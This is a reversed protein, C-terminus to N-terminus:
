PRSSSVHQAMTNSQGMRETVRGGNMWFSDFLTDFREFEEICGTLVTKLASKAENPRFADVFTLSTLSAEAEAVGVRFGNDRLHAVFGGLRASPGSDRGSFKTVSTM